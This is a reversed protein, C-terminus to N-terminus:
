HGEEKALVEEIKMGVSQGDKFITGTIGKQFRATAYEYAKPPLAVYGVEEVLKPANELYFNVFAPVAANTNARKKNIYILLPRSLPSYTGNVITEHDPKVAAARKEADSKSEDGSYIPVLKLKDTNEKYYAYGFYGLAGKDGAIGQVLVNDDESPQYDSRINGKKGCIAETFYDFTGSDVGPGYLVLKDAPWGARVDQWTMVKSGNEWIKKLEGVTLYDVFSNSPNVMVSLGDFAIPLEIFEIKRDKATELEKPTMPRSANAIDLEGGKFRKMGGGTGSLGVTVQVKPHLKGFEEAVAESIPYVTSSGDVAIKGKLEAGKQAAGLGAMLMVGAAVATVALTKVSKIM